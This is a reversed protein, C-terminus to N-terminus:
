LLWPVPSPGPADGETLRPRPWMGQVRHPPRGGGGTGGAQTEGCAACVTKRVPHGTLHSGLKEGGPGVTERDGRLAKGGEEGGGRM